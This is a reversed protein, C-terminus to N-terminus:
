KNMPPRPRTKGLVVFLGKIEFVLVDNEKLLATGSAAFGEGTQFRIGCIVQNSVHVLEEVM